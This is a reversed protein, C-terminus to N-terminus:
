VGSNRGGCLKTIGAASRSGGEGIAGEGVVGAGSAAESEGGGVLCCPAIAASVGDSPETGLSDGALRTAMAPTAEGAASDIGPRKAAAPIPPETEALGEVLLSLKVERPPFERPPELPRTLVRHYQVWEPLAWGELTLGERIAPVDVSGRWINRALYGRLEECFTASWIRLSRLCRTPPL